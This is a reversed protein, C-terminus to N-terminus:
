IGSDIELFEPAEEIYIESDSRQHLRVNGSLELLRIFGSINVTRFSGSIPKDALSSDALILQVSNYANFAEVVEALPTASFKLKKPKWNLYEEVGAVPVDEIEIGRNRGKLGLRTRQGTNLEKIETATPSFIPNTLSKKAADISVRGETVLVELSENEAYRVNFETGLAQVNIGEAEVVFPRDSEKAVTFYAEGTLLQVQRREKSFSVLLKTGAKLDVESGDEFFYYQYSHSAIELTGSGDGEPAPEEQNLFFLLGLFLVCFCAAAALFTRYKKSPKLYELLHPNVEESHEPKWQALLDFDNWANQLRNFCERHRPDRSLWQHFDDQDRPSFGRDQRIIWESAEREITKLDGSDKDRNSHASM